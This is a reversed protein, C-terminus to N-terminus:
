VYKGIDTRVYNIVTVVLLGRDRGIRVPHLENGPLVGAAARADIPFAAMLAPTDASNVPLEFDIGDVTAFRGSQRHQRAPLPSPMVRMATRLVPVFPSLSTM